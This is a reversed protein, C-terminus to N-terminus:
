LEIRGPRSDYNSKLSALETILSDRLRYAPTLKRADASLLSFSLGPHALLKKPPSGPLQFDPSVWYPGKATFQPEAPIEAALVFPVTLSKRQAHDCVPLVQIAIWDHPLNPPLQLKRTVKSLDDGFYQRVQDDGLRIAAGRDLASGNPTAPAFHLASNIAFRYAQVFPACRERAIAAGMAAEWRQHQESTETSSSLRDALLPLLIEQISAGPQEAALDCGTAAQALATLLVDLRPRETAHISRSLKVLESVCEAAALAVDDIWHYLASIQPNNSLQQQIADRLQAPENGLFANKDLSLVVSPLSSAHREALYQRLEEVEDPHRTWLVLMPVHNHAGCISDLISGIVSFNAKAGPPLAAQLHLDCFVIRCHGSKDRSVDVEGSYHLPISPVGLSHLANVLLSLHDLEDDVVIARGSGFM